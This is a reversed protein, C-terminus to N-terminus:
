DGSVCFQSVLVEWQQLQTRCSGSLATLSGNGCSHEALVLCLQSVECSGRFARDGTISNTWDLLLEPVTHSRKMGLLEPVTISNTWDLWGWFTLKIGLDPYRITFALLQLNERLILSILNPTSIQLKCKDNRGDNTLELYTLKPASINLLKQRNDHDCYRIILNELVSCSLTVLESKPLAVFELHLSKLQTDSFLSDPMHLDNRARLKFVQIKSFQPWMLEYGDECFNLYFHFCLEEVNDAAYQMWDEFYNRFNDPNYFNRLHYTIRLSKLVSNDDREDYLVRDVFGPFSNHIRHFNLIPLSKWLNLWRKSLLSTNRIVDEIVMFSLIHHLVVDPLESIM